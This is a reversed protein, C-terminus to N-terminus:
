KLTFRAVNGRSVSALDVPQGRYALKVDASNGVVVDFPPVGTVSQREGARMMKALLVRGSRDRVETWSFDRYDFVLTAEEAAPALAAVNASTPAADAAADTPSAASPAPPSAGTSPADTSPASLVPNPLATTVEGTNRAPTAPRQAGNAADDDAQRRYEYVAAGAVAAILVLPITWRTWASKRGGADPLEGISSATAHLTPAELSPAAASAPLASLVAEPDLQLLRAYNRMFGRVFTRGPLRSYDGGELAEVQRPALKLQQAVADLSLGAAERARRLLLGATQPEMEPPLADTTMAEGTRAAALRM